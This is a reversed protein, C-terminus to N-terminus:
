KNENKFEELEKKIQEEISELPNDGQSRVFNQKRGRQRIQAYEESDYNKYKEDPENDWGEETEDDEGCGCDGGVSPEAKMTPLNDGQPMDQDGVQKLGALKMIQALVPLDEPSDSAITITEDIKQKVGNMKETNELADTHVNPNKEDLERLKKLVDIMQM